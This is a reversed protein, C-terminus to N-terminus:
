PKRSVDATGATGAHLAVSRFTIDGACSETSSRALSMDSGSDSGGPRRPSFLRASFSTLLTLPHLLESGTASLNFAAKGARSISKPRSM